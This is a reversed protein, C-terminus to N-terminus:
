NRDTGAPTISVIEIAWSTLQTIVGHLQASDRVEGVLRTHRGAIAEISFDDSLRGLLRESVDGRIVIEYTVPENM